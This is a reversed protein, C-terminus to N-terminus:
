EDKLVMPLGAVMFVVRNAIKALDQHLRGAHDRFARALANDPVVGLGVENSVFVIPAKASRASTLLKEIEEAVDKEALMINTLWLTLCDVLMPRAENSVLSALDLPTEVTQWGDDRRSQHHAIRDRMEDDFAQATACYLWPPPLAKILQEAYSSKGSRAGGLILSLGIASQERTMILSAVKVHSAAKAFTRQVDM